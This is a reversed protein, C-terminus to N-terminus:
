RVSIATSALKSQPFRLAVANPWDVHEMLDATTQLAREGTASKFWPNAEKTSHKLMPM